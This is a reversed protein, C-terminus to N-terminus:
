PRICNSCTGCTQNMCGVLASYDGTGVCGGLDGDVNAIACPDGTAYCGGFCSVLFGIDSAGISGDGDLDTACLECSSTAEVCHECSLTCVPAGAVCVGASCIEAGNCFVADDCDPDTLCQATCPNSGLGDIHLSWSNLTGPDPTASDYVTITWVGASDLGDFASLASDPTYNPPSTPNNVCLSEITGGTGEDDLLIGSYNNLSCGFTSAPVGPRDLVTVTVGLHSVMVTVDGVYTHTITLDIDVDGIPFSDPVNITDVAPNGSGGGDPIAVGPANQYVTPAGATGSGCVTADGLYSGGSTACGASTDITCFAGACCAGEPQCVGGVCVEGTPCSIPTNSCSGTTCVDVTCSDGDDCDFNTVCPTLLSLSNIADIRGYGYGIDFGVPGLDIAGDRILQRVEAPTLTPDVSLLLAALGAVHPSAQSTGCQSAFTTGGAAIGASRADCGPATVDLQSSRNSFCILSDVTINTDTCLTTTCAANGCWSFSSQPNECNPFDNDFVAGVAVAGSACAPSGLANANAENGAAAIVVVGNSVANNVAIASSDGDCVGAFVGGGLSLNIVDCRGGSATQDAAYNIGAIVDSNFGSGAADLVKVGILTAAPAVGQLTTPVGCRTDLIGTGGVAIGAVNSGHGNDDEPNNDNNAFDRGAATDIRGAFMSHDTDIGTDVICVRVGNGDASLGAGTIQSQLARIMPTSVTLYARMVRDEELKVVGPMALLDALRARPINRLNITNPLVTKYEYKLRGGINEAWTRVNDRRQIAAQAVIGGPVPAFEVFVSVRDAGAALIAPSSVTAARSEANISRPATPGIRQTGQKAEGDISRVIPGTSVGDQGVAIGPLSLLATVVLARLGRVVYVRWIM